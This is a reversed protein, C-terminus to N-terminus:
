CTPNKTTATKNTQKYTITKIWKFFNEEIGLKQYTKIVFSHQTKDFAKEIDISIIM